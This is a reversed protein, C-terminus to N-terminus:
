KVKIWGDKVAAQWSEFTKVVAKGELIMEVVQFARDGKAKVYSGKFQGKYKKNKWM